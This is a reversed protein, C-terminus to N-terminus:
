ARGGVLQLRPAEARPPVPAIRELWALVAARRWKLPRQCTPMPEPFELDRELRDRDKRFAEASSYGTLAAVDPATIFIPETM